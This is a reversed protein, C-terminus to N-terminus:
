AFRVISALGVVLCYTAFPNLNHSTFYRVLFRVSLYAAIAACLSGVLVQGRVHEGTHGLLDPLRAASGFLDDARKPGRGPACSRPRPPM